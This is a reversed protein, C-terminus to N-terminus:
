FHFLVLGQSGDAPPLWECWSAATSIFSFSARVSRGPCSPPGNVLPRNLHRGARSLALACTSWTHSTIPLPSPASRERGCSCGTGCGRSVLHWMPLAVLFVSLAIANWELPWLFAERQASSTPKMSSTAKKFLSPSHHPGLPSPVHRCELVLWLMLSSVAGLPTEHSLCGSFTQPFLQDM